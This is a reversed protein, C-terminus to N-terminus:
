LPSRLVVRRYSTLAPMGNDTVELVLHAEKGQFGTPAHMTVRSSKPEQLVLESTFTGPDRYVWWHYSLEHGDSDWSASADITTVGNSNLTRHLVETGADGDIVATPAHNIREPAHVCLDMRAAFDRQFADRWRYVAEKGEPADMWHRSGPTRQVFRGGWGGLSPDELSALGRTASLLYFFSPTDGEVVGPKASWGAPPYAAGLPGHGKRVNAELWLGDALASTSGRTFATMGQFAQHSTIIFLNPFNEEIWAGTGDQHDIMYVRIRNIFQALREPERERKVRWLAQAMEQTGGWFLFWIPEDSADVIEVIRQSAESDKGEGLIANAPQAYTGSLGQHVRMRLDAALPYAPDHVRLAAEVAAYRDLMDLINRKNAVNALTGAAAVLAEIRFENAYVLLRVFSQLDDPDSRKEPPGYGLAGPIVDIPPFDSSVVVRPRYKAPTTTAM